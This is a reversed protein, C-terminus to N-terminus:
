NYSSFYHNGVQFMPVGYQSYHGANFFIVDYNTRNDLEEIVLQVIEDMVYCRDVRGNWMSTFQNRQYIVSRITSPFEGGYDARNLVTDIVLRKGEEPEGEAEAMTLLALLEIDEKSVSESRKPETEEPFPNAQATETPETELIDEHVPPATEELLKSTPAEVDTVFELTKAELNEDPKSIAPPEPIDSYETEGADFIFSAFFSIAASLAVLCAMFQKM